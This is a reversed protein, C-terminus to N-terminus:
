TSDERIAFRLTRRGLWRVGLADRLGRAARNWMGYKSRGHRRPRHSVPVETVAGGQMRILTPLFRHMGNFRPLAVMRDRRIAKLSCGTDRVADGTIWNRARNAIWSQLLKWRPDTRRVRYGVVAALGDDGALAKLLGPIDAPDNQGDADMLVVVAGLAADAGAVFAASQGANRELAVVRLPPHRAMLRRLEDLSGDVSGDDVAVVEHPVDRMTAAIEDLLPALNERENYVPLVVSVVPDRVRTLTRRALGPILNVLSRGGM